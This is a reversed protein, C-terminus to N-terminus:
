LPRATVPNVFTNTASQWVLFVNVMNTQWFGGGVTYANSWVIGPFGSAEVYVPLPERLSAFSVTGTASGDGYIRVPREVYNTVTVAATINSYIQWAPAASATAAAATLAALDYVALTDETIWEATATGTAAMEPSSYSLSIESVDGHEPTLGGWFAQEYGIGDVDVQAYVYEPEGAAYYRLVGAFGGGTWTTSFPVTATQLPGGVFWATGPRVLLQPTEYRIMAVLQTSGRVEWWISTNSADQWRTVRNTRGYEAIAALAALDQEATLAGIQAATVGHPNDARLIHAAASAVHGSQVGTVTEARDATVDALWTIKTDALVNCATYIIVALATIHRM